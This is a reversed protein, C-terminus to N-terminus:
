PSTMAQLLNSHQNAAASGFGGGWTGSQHIFRVSRWAWCQGGMCHQLGLERATVRGSLSALTWVKVGERSEAEDDFAGLLLSSHASMLQLVVWWNELFAVSYLDGLCTTFESPPAPVMGPCYTGWSSEHANSATTAYISLSDDLLGEFMSGSECAEVYLM